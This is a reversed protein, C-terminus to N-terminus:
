KTGKLEEYVRIMGVLDCEIMAKHAAAIGQRIITAGFQGAPGISAYQTLLEQCRQIEKPLAEALTQTDSM